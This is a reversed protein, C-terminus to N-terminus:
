KFVWRKKWQSTSELSSTEQEQQRRQWITAVSDSLDRDRYPIAAKTQLHESEPPSLAPLQDDTYSAVTGPSRRGVPTTAGIKLGAAM